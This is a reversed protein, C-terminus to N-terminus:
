GREYTLYSFTLGDEEQIPEEHALHWGPLQDLNPFHRDAPQIAHVLTVYVRDCFPLLADYVSAGGIVFLDDPNEAACRELLAEISHVATAGEVRYLPNRSMILNTRGSLPRGQPFTQLTKRGLIVIKGLTLSRFRRLDSKIRFLLEGDRGIGWNQDVAVIANM